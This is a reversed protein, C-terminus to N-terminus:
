LWLLAVGGVHMLMAGLLKEKLQAEKLLRAGFAAASLM